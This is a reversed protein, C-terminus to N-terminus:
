KVAKVQLVSAEGNHKNGERLKRVMPNISLKTFHKFDNELDAKSYLMDKDGPGATGYKLQDKNFAEMILTGGPKLLEYVRQHFIKREEPPLHLFIIGAADYANEQLDLFQVDLRHYQLEVGEKKAMAMSKRQAEKSQDVAVVDWGLKAAFVANRGEGAGLDLLYGPKLQKINDAFFDNAGTGYIYEDTGYRKDWFQTM